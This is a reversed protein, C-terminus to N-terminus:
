TEKMSRFLFKKTFHLMYLVVIVNNIERRPFEFDFVITKKEVYQNHRRSSRMNSIDIEKQIKALTTNDNTVHYSASSDFYWM